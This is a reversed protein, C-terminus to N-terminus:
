AEFGPETIVDAWKVNEAAVFTKFEEATSGNIVFGISELKQRVEADKLVENFAANYKKVVDPSM